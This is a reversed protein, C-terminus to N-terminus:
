APTRSATTDPIRATTKGPSTFIRRTASSSTKFSRFREMAIAFNVRKEFDSENLVQCTRIKYPRMKLDLKLIRQITPQSTGLRAAMRRQSTQPNRKVIRKVSDIMEKTRSPRSLKKRPKNQIIGDRECKKIWSLIAQTSPCQSIKKLKFKNMFARRASVASKAKEYYARVCFSRDTDSFKAMAVSIWQSLNGRKLPDLYIPCGAAFNHAFFTSVTRQNM